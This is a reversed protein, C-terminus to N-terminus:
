ASAPEVEVFQPGYLGSIVSRFLQGDKAYAICRMGKFTEIVAHNSKQTQEAGYNTYKLNVYRAQGTRNSYELCLAENTTMSVGRPFIRLDHM